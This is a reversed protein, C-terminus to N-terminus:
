QSVVLPYQGVSLTTHDTTRLAYQPRPQHFDENLRFIFSQEIANWFMEASRASPPSTLFFTLKWLPLIRECPLFCNLMSDNLIYVNETSRQPRHQSILFSIKRQRDNHFSRNEFFLMVHAKISGRFKQPRDQRFSRSEFQVLLTKWTCWDYYTTKQSRLILM